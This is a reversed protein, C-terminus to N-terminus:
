YMGVIGTATSAAAVRVARFPITTGANVTYTVDVGSIDRLVLTGSGGVYIARPTVALDTDAATISFHRDAPFASNLPQGVGAM